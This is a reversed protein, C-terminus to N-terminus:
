GSIKDLKLKKILEHYKEYLKSIERDRQKALEIEKFYKEENYLYDSTEEVKIDSICEYKTYLLDIISAKNATEVLCTIKYTIGLAGSTRGNFTVRYLMIKGIM